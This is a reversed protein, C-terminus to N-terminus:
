KILHTLVRSHRELTFASIVESTSPFANQFIIAEMKPVGGRHWAGCKTSETCKRLMRLWRVLSITDGKELHPFLSKSLARSKSKTVFSIFPLDLGWNARNWARAKLWWEKRSLAKCVSDRSM